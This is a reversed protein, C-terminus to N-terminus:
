EWGQFLACVYVASVKSRLSNGLETAEAVLPHSKGLGVSLVSETTKHLEDAASELEDATTGNGSVSADLVHNAKKIASGLTSELAQFLYPDM